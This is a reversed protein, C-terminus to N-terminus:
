LGCAATCIDMLLRKKKSRLEKAINKMRTLVRYLTTRTKDTEAM